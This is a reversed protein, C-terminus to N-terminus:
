NNTKLKLMKKYTSEVQEFTLTTCGVTLSKGDTTAEHGALKFSEITPLLSLSDELFPIVDTVLSYGSICFNNDFKVYFENNNTINIIVGNKNLTNCIVTVKDGVKFKNMNNMKLVTKQFEEWTILQGFRFQHSHNGNIEKNKTILIFRYFETDNPYTLHYGKQLLISEIEKRKEPTQSDIQYQWYSM